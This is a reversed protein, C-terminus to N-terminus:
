WQRIYTEDSQGCRLDKWWARVGFRMQLRPSYSQTSMSSRQSPVPTVQFGDRSDLGVGRLTITLSKSLTWSRTRSPGVISQERYVTSLHTRSKSEFHCLAGVTKFTVALHGKVIIYWSSAHMIVEYAFAPAWPRLSRGAATRRVSYIGMRSSRAKLLARRQRHTQKMLPYSVELLAPCRRPGALQRLGVPAPALSFSHGVAENGDESLNTHIWAANKGCIGPFSQRLSLHWWLSVVM